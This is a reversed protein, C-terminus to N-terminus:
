RAHQGRRQHVARRRQDGNRIQIARVVQEDEAGIRHHGVSAEHDGGADTLPQLRQAGPACPDDHDVRAARFRGLKGVLMVENAGASVHKKEQRHEVHNQRFSQVARTREGGDVAQGTNLVSNLAVIRGADSGGDAHGFLRDAREGARERLCFM